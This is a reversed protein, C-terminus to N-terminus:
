LILNVINPKVINPKIINPKVDNPKVLIKYRMKSSFNLFCLNFNSVGIPPIYKPHHWFNPTFCHKVWYQTLYMKIIERIYDIKSYNLEIFLWNGQVLVLILDLEPEHFGSINSENVENRKVYFYFQLNEKFLYINEPNIIHWVTM